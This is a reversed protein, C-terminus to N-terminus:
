HLWLPEVIRQEYPGLRRTVRLVNIRNYEMSTPFSCKETGFGGYLSTRNRCYNM